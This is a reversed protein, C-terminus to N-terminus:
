KVTGHGGTFSINMTLAEADATQTPLDIIDMDFTDRGPLCRKLNLEEYGYQQLLRIIHPPQATCRAGLVVECLSKPTFAEFYLDAHMTCSKLPVLRRAEEEYSWSRAKVSVMRESQSLQSETAKEFIKKALLPREDQYDVHVIDDQDSYKFGLAIGRHSDAYHSWVVPNILTKSYSILGVYCSFADLAQQSAQLGLNGDIGEFLPLCDYPDNLENLMGVKLRREQIAQLAYYFPLYRYLIIEM